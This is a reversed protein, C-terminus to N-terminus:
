NAKKDKQELKKNIYDRAGRRAREFDTFQEQLTFSPKLCTVTVFGYPDTAKLIFKYGLHEFEQKREDNAPGITFRM